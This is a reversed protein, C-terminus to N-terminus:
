RDPTDPVLASRARTQLSRMQAREDTGMREIARTYAGRAVRGANAELYARVERPYTRWMERLVWGVAKQIPQRTDEACNDVMPLVVDPPLFAANKGTYHILSVISVRKRWLDDAVNWRRLQPMVSGPDAELMRSYTGSLVDSHAWNDVRDIWRRMTPWYIPLVRRRVLPRYYEEAAFLVDAWESGMWLDDWIDLVDEPERALFSFGERVRRRLAPVRIGVYKMGSALPVGEREGASPKVAGRDRAMHLGLSPNGLAQLADLVEAHYEPYKM